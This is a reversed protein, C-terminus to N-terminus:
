EAASQEDLLSPEDNMVEYGASQEKEKKAKEAEFDIDFPLLSHSYEHTTDETFNDNRDKVYAFNEFERIVNRCNPHIIIQNNQLFNLRAKVSNQGKICPKAAFGKQRLYEISRPEASDCWIITKGVKLNTIAEAIGDLQSGTKYWEDYVYITNHEKDYLSCVVTAPDVYGFDLGVRNEYGKGALELVDFDEIKFNQFVLGFRQRAQKNADKGAYVAKGSADNQAVFLDGYSLSGAEFTELLTACRLLTSKGSGSPGIISVIEGDEVSLSIDKLVTLDDFSKEVHNIELLKM